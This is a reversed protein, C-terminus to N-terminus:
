NVTVCPLSFCYLLQFWLIDTLKKSVSVFLRNDANNSIEPSNNGGGSTNHCNFNLGKGRQDLAPVRQSWVDEKPLPRLHLRLNGEVGM